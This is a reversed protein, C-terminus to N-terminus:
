FVLHSVAPGYNYHLIAAVLFFDVVLHVILVWLLCRSGEYMAGQTLAFGYVIPPGWGTFAMDSLVSTYVIAQGLNAIRLPYLSRLIAYVTNIFFLEDWIGVCNIGVILRWTEGRDPVSPLPWHAPVDPSLTFFYVEIIAWALPISFSTYIIDAWRFRRPWLRFDLLGPDTRRLVLAPVLIVALFCVGLTIFHRNDLGTHIPAAGLLAVVGLLVLFRRRFTPKQERLVLALCVGWACAGWLYRELPMLLVTALSFVGLVLLHDGTVRREPDNVCAWKRVITPLRM